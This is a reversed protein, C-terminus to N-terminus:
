NTCTLTGRTYIAGGSSDLDTNNANFNGTLSKIYNNKITVSTLEATSGKNIRIVSLCNAKKAGTITVVYGNYEVIKLTSSGYVYFMLGTYGSGRTITRNAGSARITVTCGNEINVRGTLTVNGTLNVTTNSTFTRGAVTGTWDLAWANGVWGLLALVLLMRLTHLKKM